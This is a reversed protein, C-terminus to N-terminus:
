REFSDHSFCQAPFPPSNKRIEPTRRLKCIISLGRVCLQLPQPRHIQRLHWLHLSSPNREAAM